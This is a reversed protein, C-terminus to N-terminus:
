DRGAPAGGLILVHALPDSRNELGMTRHGTDVLGVPFGPVPTRNVALDGDVAVFAYEFDPNLTIALETEPAITLQAAVCPQNTEITGTRGFMEGIFVYAEGATRTTVTRLPFAEPEAIQQRAPLADAEIFMQGQPRDLDDGTRLSGNHRWTLSALGVPADHPGSLGLLCTSARWPGTHLEIFTM